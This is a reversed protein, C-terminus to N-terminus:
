AKLRGIFATAYQPVSMPGNHTARAAVGLLLLWVAPPTTALNRWARRFVWLSSGGTMTFDAWKPFMTARWFTWALGPWAASNRGANNIYWNSCGASFVTEELVGDLDQVFKEEAEEKVEIVDAYGDLVPKILTSAVYAVQVEVAYIVSNFAPFTNPGFLIAFNPLNRVFTGMYAQAGRRKDWQDQLSEGTKGIVKMPALFSQVDFGTALIVADFDEKKGKESILGTETFGQLGEPLLEVNDRHLSALYGPDYIRRKCGLPFDPVIFSHYKEPAERYIYQRAEEETALRQKVQKEEPGYVAALQDTKLFTDLRYYRQWLPIYRFCFKDFTSYPKNPREHYWQAGRAYQTLKKVGPAISPVVQAASCGNGIVAVRKNTWDFSHDWAATHFIRGKFRDMGPFKVDRPQSFGGVASILITCTETFKEGTIRNVFAVHWQGDVWKAGLCESNFHFHSRLQFKDVTSEVYKLIEEQDALAQTWDPNLNFSFSYLHIPVDSGCGPYTNARWTGGLGERKDYIQFDTYGLKWKLTHAMSIGAVGGGIIITKPVAM